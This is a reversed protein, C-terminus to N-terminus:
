KATPTSQQAKRFPDYGTGNVDVRASVTGVGLLPMFANVPFSRTILKADYSEANSNWRGDLRIDGDSTAAKLNGAVSGRNMGINGYLTMPPIRLAKATNKDLLANKFSNVNIINGRLRINGGLAKPQMMNEIYGSATLNVCRNLSLSLEDIDLRGATGDASINILIDDASPIPSLIPSGLPFM